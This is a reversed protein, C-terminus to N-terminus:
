KKKPQPKAKAKPKVKEPLKDPVGYKKAWEKAVKPEQSFLYRQQAKSKFPMKNEKLPPRVPWQWLKARQLYWRVKAEISRM